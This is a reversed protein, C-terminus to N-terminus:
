KQLLWASLSKLVAALHPNGKSAGFCSQMDKSKHVLTASLGTAYIFEVEGEPM